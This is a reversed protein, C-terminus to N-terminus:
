VDIVCQAVWTGDAEEAVRLATFTAGKAEVILGHKREDVAEGWARGTLVGREIAVEFRAFVMNRTAMEFILANLWDTLLIEDDPAACRIEVSERPAVTGPVVTAATMAMAAQEFAEDLTRGVGRIGVDAGHPFHEWHPPQEHARYEAVIDELPTSPRRKSEKKRDEHVGAGRKREHGLRQKTM